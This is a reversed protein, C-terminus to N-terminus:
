LCVGIEFDLVQHSSVDGLQRAVLTGNWSAYGAPPDTDLLALIRRETERNYLPKKGSRPADELGELRSQAFRQRWQVVMSRSLGVDTAIAKNTMGESALLVIHARQVARYPATRTRVTEELKQREEMTLKIEIKSKRM